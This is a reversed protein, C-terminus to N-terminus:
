DDEGMSFGHGESDGDYGDSGILLVTGHHLAFGRALRGDDIGASINIPNERGYVFHARRNLFDEQGVTMHIVASGAVHKVLTQRNGDLPGLLPVAKPDILQELPTLHGVERMCIREFRITPQLIAFGDGDSLRRNLNNVTGSVGGAMDHKNMRRVLDGPNPVDDKGAGYPARIKGHSIM